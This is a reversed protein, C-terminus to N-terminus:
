PKKSNIYQYLWTKEIFSPKNVILSNLVGYILDVFIITLNISVDYPHPVLLLICLRISLLIVAKWPKQRITEFYYTASFLYIFVYSVVRIM